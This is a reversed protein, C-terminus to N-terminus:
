GIPKFYRIDLISGKREDKWVAKVKMGIRVDDPQVEGLYHLIGMLPSAGDIEIVAIIIPEKRRSADANVYAVSYTNVKGTDKLKVWEDNPRFCQECYMRPPVVIRGCRNCKRGWIEKNKLGELFRSIAVGSTWSYRIRAEFQETVYKKIEESSVSVGPLSQM